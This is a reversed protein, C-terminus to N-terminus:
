GAMRDEPTRYVRVPQFEGSETWRGIGLLTGRPGVARVWADEAQGESGSLGDIPNGHSFRDIHGGSLTVAPMPALGENPDLLHEHAGGKSAVSELHELAVCQDLGIQGVATRRLASVHGGCGLERGVDDALSRIYTGKSCSVLLDLDPPDFATIEIRHIQVPRAQRDVQVGARALEHLRRGSVKLASYMPPRQEIKGVFKAVVRSVPEREQPVDSSEAVVRGAADLTDTTVGLHIRARYEKDHDSLFQSLRTARGICLVLVGTALPDLTGTHGVKAGGLVKRV